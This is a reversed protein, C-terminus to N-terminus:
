IREWNLLQNTTVRIKTAELQQLKVLM